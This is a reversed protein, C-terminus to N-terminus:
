RMRAVLSACCRLRRRKKRSLAETAEAGDGGRDARALIQCSSDAARNRQTADAMADLIVRVMASRCRCRFDGEVCGACKRALAIALADEGTSAKAEPSANARVLLKVTELRLQFVAFMLPTFRRRTVPGDVEAGHALLLSVVENNGAFAPCCRVDARVHSKAKLEAIPHLGHRLGPATPPALHVQVRAAM